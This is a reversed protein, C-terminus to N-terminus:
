GTARWRTPWGPISRPTPSGPRAPIQSPVVNFVYPIEGAHFAKLEKARPSPPVHRFYYLSGAPYQAQPCEAGFASADRAGSWAVVPQPPRWRLPGVPPAAFPIGKFVRVGRDVAGAIQGGDVTVTEPAARMSLGSVILAAAVLAIRPM